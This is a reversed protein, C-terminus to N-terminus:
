IKLPMIVSKQESGNMEPVLLSSSVSTTIHFVAREGRISELADLVYDANFSIEIDGGKRIIDIVEEYQEEDKRSSVKLGDSGLKFKVAANREGVLAKAHKVSEYLSKIDFSFSKEVGSPIVRRYDPYDSGPMIRTHLVITRTENAFTAVNDAFEVTFGGDGFTTLLKELEMVAKFPLILRADRVNNTLTIEDIALRHGDTAVARFRGEELELLMGNLYHRSDRQAMAYSTARLLTQLKEADLDLCASPEERRMLPFDDPPLTSLVFRSKGSTMTLRQAEPQLQFVSDEPFSRLLEHFKRGQVLVAFDEGREDIECSAELEVESDTATATLRKDQRRLLVHGFVPSTAHPDTVGVVSQIIKSIKANVISTHM